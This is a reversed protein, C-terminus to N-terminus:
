IFIKKIIPRLFNKGPVLTRLLEDLKKCLLIKESLMEIDIAPLGEQQGILQSLALKVDTMYFHNEHLTKAHRHIFTKCAQVDGKKMQALDIGIKETIQEAMDWSISSNCTNCIYDPREENNTIFTKPLM